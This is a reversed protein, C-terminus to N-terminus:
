LSYTCSLKLVRSVYLYLVVIYLVLSVLILLLSQFGIIFSVTNCVIFNALAFNAKMRNQNDQQHSVPFPFLKQIRSLVRIGRIMQSQGNLCPLRLLFIGVPTNAKFGKPTSDRLFLWHRQKKLAIRLTTRLVLANFVFNLPVRLSIIKTVPFM